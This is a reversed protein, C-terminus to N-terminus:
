WTLRLGGHHGEGQCLQHSQRATQPVRTQSDDLQGVGLGFRLVALLIHSGEATHTHLGVSLHLLADLSLLFAPYLEELYALYLWRCM